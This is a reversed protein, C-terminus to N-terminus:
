DGSAALADFRAAAGFGSDRCKGDLHIVWRLNLENPCGDSDIKEAEKDM